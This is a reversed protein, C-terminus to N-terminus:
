ERAQRASDNLTDAITQQLKDLNLWLLNIRSDLVELLNDSAPLRHIPHESPAGGAVLALLAGSVEVLVLAPPARLPATFGVLAGVDVAAVARGFHNYAGILWTPAGPAPVLVPSLVTGRVDMRSVCYSKGRAEYRSAIM